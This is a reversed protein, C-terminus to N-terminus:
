IDTATASQVPGSECERFGGERGERRVEERGGKERVVGERTTRSATERWQSKKGAAGTDRRHGKKQYM